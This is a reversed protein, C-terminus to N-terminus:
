RGLPCIVQRLPDTHPNFFFFFLIVRMSRVTGLVSCVSCLHSIKKYLGIWLDMQTSLSTPFGCFELCARRGSKKAQFTFSITEILFLLQHPKQGLSATRSLTSRPTKGSGPDVQGRPEYFFLNKSIQM